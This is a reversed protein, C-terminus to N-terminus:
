HSLAGLRQSLEHDERLPLTFWFCAGAGPKSKVGIEGGMLTVLNRCITLGLGTGGYQRTISADAQTFPQFLRDQIDPDIGIGTDQVECRLLVHDADLLSAALTIDIRGDRTFKIANGILNTVIQRLRLPDGIVHEPVSDPVHLELRNGAAEARPRHLTVLSQLTPRLDFDVTEIRMKGAELKSVDLIDDILGLLDRASQEAIEAYHRLRDDLGGDRLLTLMGLVGNMPTRIEHSMMALFSSKARNAAEAADRAVELDRAVQTLSEAQAALIRQQQEMEMMQRRIDEIDEISGVMRIPKGEADRMAAGRALTWVFLGDDRRLRFEMECPTGRILHRGIRQRIVGHDEPHVRDMFSNDPFRRLEPEASYGGSTIFGAIVTTEGSNVDWDWIGIRAGRMAAEFRENTEQLRARAQAMDRRQMLAHYALAVLGAIMATALLCFLLTLTAVSRNREGNHQAEQTPAISLSWDAGLTPLPFSLARRLNHRESQFVMHNDREIRLAYGFSSTTGALADFIQVVLVSAVLLGTQGDPTTLPALLAVADRGDAFRVDATIEARGPSFDGRRLREVLNERLAEGLILGRTPAPVAHPTGIQLWHQQLVNGNVVFLELSALMNDSQLLLRADRRLSADAIVWSEGHSAQLSELSSLRNGLRRELELDFWRAHDAMDGQLGREEARATAQWLAFSAASGALLILTLALLLPRPMAPGPMAAYRAACGLALLLYVPVIPLLAAAHDAWLRTEPMLDLASVILIVAWALLMTCAAWALLRLAAGAQRVPIGLGVAGFLLGFAAVPGIHGIHALLSEQPGLYITSRELDPFLLAHLLALGALTGIGAACIGTILQRKLGALLGLAALFAAALMELHLPPAGPLSALRWAMDNDLALAYLVALALLGLGALRALQAQAGASITHPTAMDHKYRCPRGPALRSLANRFIGHGDRNHGSRTAAM